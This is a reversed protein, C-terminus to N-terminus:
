KERYKELLIKEEDDLMEETLGNFEMDRKLKEVLIKEGSEDQGIQLEYQSNMIREGHRQAMEYKQPDRKKEREVAALLGDNISQNNKHIIKSLNLTQQKRTNDTWNPSTDM